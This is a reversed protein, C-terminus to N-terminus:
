RRWFQWWKKTTLINALQILSTKAAEKSKFDINCYRDNCHIYMRNDDVRIMSIHRIPLIIEGGVLLWEKNLKSIIVTKM